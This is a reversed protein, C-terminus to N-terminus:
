DSVTKRWKKWVSKYYEEESHNQVAVRMKPDDLMNDAIQVIRKIDRWSLNDPFDERELRRGEEVGKMFIVTDEPMPMQSEMWKAGAIFADRVYLVEGNNHSLIWEDAAEELKIKHPADILEWNDQYSYDLCYSDGDSLQLSYCTKLLM